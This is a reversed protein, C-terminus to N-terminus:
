KRALVVMGSTETVLRQLVALPICLAVLANYLPMRGHTTKIGIRDVLWNQLSLTWGYAVLAKDAKISRFGANKLLTKVNHRNFLFTHRPYHFGGWYKGFLPRLACAANPMEILAAGGPRLLQHVIQMVNLPDRVHELVSQLLILDYSEPPLACAEISSHHIIFGKRNGAEVVEKRMDLGEIQAAPFADRISELFFADSCGVDLLRGDAPLFPSIFSLRYRSFLRFLTSRLAGSKEFDMLYAPPYLSPIETEAPLPHQRLLGCQACEIISFPRCQIGHEYDKLGAYLPKFETSQCAPCLYELTSMQELKLRREQKIRWM